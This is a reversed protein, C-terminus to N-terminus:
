NRPPAVRAWAEDFIEQATVQQRIGTLNMWFALWQFIKTKGNIDPGGNLLLANMAIQNLVKNKAESNIWDDVGAALYGLNLILCIFIPRAQRIEVRESFDAIYRWLPTRFSTSAVLMILYLMKGQLPRPIAELAQEHDMDESLREYVDLIQSVTSEVAAAIKDEDLLTNNLIDPREIIIRGLESLTNALYEFQRNRYFGEVTKFFMALGEDMKGTHIMCYGLHHYTSLLNTEDNFLKQVILTKQYYIIAQILDGSFEYVKGLESNLLAINGLASSDGDNPLIAVSNYDKIIKDEGLLKLASSYYKKADAWQKGELAYRGKAWNLNIQMQLNRTEESIKSMEDIIVKLNNLDFQREYIQALYMYQQAVLDFQKLLVNARIGAKAFMMGYEFYGRTFCFKGLAATIGIIVSVYAKHGEDTLNNLGHTRQQAVHFAELINPLSDDLKLIGITPPGDHWGEVFYSDIFVAEEMIDTYAQIEIAEIGEEFRKAMTNIFPRVPNPIAIFEFQFQDFDSELFFFQKVAAIHYDVKTDKSSAKFRDVNLGAPHCKVYFLLRKEDLSLCEFVTSLCLELSTGKDHTRRLPQELIEQANIKEITKKASGWFKILSAMLKLSLPHGNCFETIWFVEDGNLPLEPPLLSQLVSLAPGEDIGTLGLTRQHHNFVSMSVQTTVILQLGKTQTILMTILDEVEDRCPILLRELSDFILTITVDAIEDIFSKTPPKGTLESLGSQLVMTLDKVTSVTEINVYIVPNHYCVTTLANLLLQTKGIGGIGQIVILNETEMLCVLQALEITRGLFLQDPLPPRLSNRFANDELNLKKRIQDILRQKTQWLLEKPIIGQDAKAHEDKAIRILNHHHHSFSVAYDNIHANDLPSGKGTIPCQGGIETILYDKIYKPIEPRKDGPISWPERLFKDFEELEEVYFFNKGERVMTSLKRDIGMNKKPANKVYAYLLEKTIGLWKAAQTDNLLHRPM